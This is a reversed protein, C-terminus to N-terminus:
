SLSNYMTLFGAAEGKLLASLKKTTMTSVSDKEFLKGRRVDLIAFAHKPVRASLEQAMLHLILQAKAKTLPESKFYMKVVIKRGDRSLCLEPNVIVAVDDCVWLSRPPLEWGFTKRGLFRKYGDIVSVYNAHKEIRVGKLIADLDSRSVKGQTHFEVIGERAEKYYDKYPAYEDKDRDKIEQVQTIRASGTKVSFDVFETLSLEVM